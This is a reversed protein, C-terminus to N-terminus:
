WGPVTSEGKVTPLIEVKQLAASLKEGLYQNDKSWSIDAQIDIKDPDLNKWSQHNRTKEM